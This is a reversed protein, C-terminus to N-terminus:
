CLLGVIATGHVKFFSIIKVPLELFLNKLQLNLRQPAKIGRHSRCSITQIAKSLHKKEMKRRKRVQMQTLTAQIGHNSVKQESFHTAIYLNLSKMKVKMKVKFSEKETIKNKRNTNHKNKDMEIRLGNIIKQSKRKQILNRDLYLFSSNHLLSLNMVIIQGV